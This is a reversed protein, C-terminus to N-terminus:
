VIAEPPTLKSAVLLLAVSVNVVERALLGALAAATVNKLV